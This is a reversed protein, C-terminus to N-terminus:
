EVVLERRVRRCLTLGIVTLIASASIPVTIDWMAHVSEGFIGQRILEMASVFPSYLMFPQVQPALWSVMTFTGSFPIMVYTTVPLLKELVDSMESLPALVLCLSFTFLCYLFWGALLSGIDAPTPFENMAMLVIAIFTFAMMAGIAEILFRVFIFDLIKIQRHYLLSANVSFVRTARIMSQRFLTLPIYGSAIFAVVSVGHEEPGHLSRWMIGVLVAFLLPEAMMWLFGINERGFRTVLERIMLASIVRRQIRWGAALKSVTL